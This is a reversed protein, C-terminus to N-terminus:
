DVLPLANKAGVEEWPRETVGFARYSVGIRTEARADDYRVNLPLKINM